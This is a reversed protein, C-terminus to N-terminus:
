SVAALPYCISVDLLFDEVLITLVVNVVDVQLAKGCGSWVAVAVNVECWEV